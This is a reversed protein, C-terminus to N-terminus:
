IDEAEDLRALQRKIHAQEMGMSYARMLHYHERAEAVRLCFLLWIRWM